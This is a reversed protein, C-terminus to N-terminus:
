KPASSNGDDDIYGLAVLPNFFQVKSNPFREDLFKKRQDKPLDKLFALLLALLEAFMPEQLKTLEQMAMSPVEKILKKINDTHREDKMKQIDEYYEKLKKIDLADMYAKFNNIIGTQQSLLTKQARIQAFLVGGVLLTSAISIISLIESSSM